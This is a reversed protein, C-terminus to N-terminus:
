MIVIVEVSISSHDSSQNEIEKETVKNTKTDKANCIMDMENQNNIVEIPEQLYLWLM